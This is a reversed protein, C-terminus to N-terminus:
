ACGERSWEISAYSGDFRFVKVAICFGEQAPDLTYQPSDAVIVTGDPLKVQYTDSPLAREYDWRCDVKTAERVCTVRVVGPPLQPVVEPPIQSPGPPAVPPNRVGDGLLLWAVAISVLVLLLVAAIVGASNKSGALDDPEEHPDDSVQVPAQEGPTPDVVKASGRRVTADANDVVESPHSQVRERNPNIADEFLPLLAPTKVDAAPQAVV